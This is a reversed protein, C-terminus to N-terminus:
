PEEDPKKDVLFVRYQGIETMKREGDIDTRRLTETAWPYAEDRDFEPGLLAACEIYSQLDDEFEIGYARADAIAQRVVPEHAEPELGHQKMEEPFQRRVHAVMRAVFAEELSKALAGMQEPRITLM